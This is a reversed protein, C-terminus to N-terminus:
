VFADVDAIGVLVRYGGGASREAYEIQDLDRSERNDISSWLLDRMDRVSPGPAAREGAREDAEVEQGAEPPFDPDFGAEVVAERAIARIDPTHRHKMSIIFSSHPIIFSLCSRM